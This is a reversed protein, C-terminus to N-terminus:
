WWGRHFSGQFKPYRFWLGTLLTKFHFKLPLKILVMVFEQFRNLSQTRRTIYTAVHEFAVMLIEWSPLGTYFRIKEDTDFFEKDPAHYESPRANLLYDFEETQTEADMRRTGRQEETQTEVDM